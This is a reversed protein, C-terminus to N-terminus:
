HALRPPRALRPPPLPARGHPRLAAVPQHPVPAVPKVVIVVELLPFDPSVREHRGEVREPRPYRRRTLGRADGRVQVHELARAPKQRASRGRAALPVRGETPSRRVEDRDFTQSAVAEVRLGVADRGVEEREDELVEDLVVRYHLLVVHLPAGGREALANPEAVARVLYAEAPRVRGEYLKVRPHRRLAPGVHQPEAAHRERGAGRGRGTLLLLLTSRRFPLSSM